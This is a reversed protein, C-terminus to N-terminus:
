PDHELAPLTCSLVKFDKCSLKFCKKNLNFMKVVPVEKDDAMKLGPNGCLVNVVELDSDDSSHVSNADEDSFNIAIVKELQL